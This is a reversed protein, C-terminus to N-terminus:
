KWLNQMEYSLMNINQKTFLFLLSTELFETTAAAISLGIYSYKSILIFCLIINIVLCVATVKTYIIQKNMANLTYLFVCSMFSLFGVLLLIIFPIIAEYYSPGYLILIILKSFVFLLSFLIFGFLFVYKLSRKYIEIFRSTSEKYFVSLKPYVSFMFLNPLITLPLVLNFAASYWGVVQDTKMLSLLIIGFKLYIAVILGSLAFPWAEKLIEKCIKFDIRLFFKSFYRWIAGLSIFTGILAAGIYGYSITLISSETLIFFAVLGLLSLSQIGRCATEYQMKENARFISHFFTAFSNIVVYMGLFYVLKVVAPEKGLFQIVLAILGLTILGLILKMAVINDFYQTTKSKDRAIERVTLTGFGFDVFVSFLLVFSLAFAWQGYIAPGFHRALWIVILLGIWRQVVEAVALWFTNKLITQKVSKNDFLLSKVDFSKVDIFNRINM